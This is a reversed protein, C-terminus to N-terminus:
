AVPVPHHTRDGSREKTSAGTSEALLDDKGLKQCDITCGSKNDISDPFVDSRGLTPLSNESTQSGSEGGTAGSGIAREEEKPLVGEEGVVQCCDCFTTHIFSRGFPRDEVVALSVYV